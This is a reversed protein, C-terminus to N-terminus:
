DLMERMFVDIEAGFARRGYFINAKLLGVPDGTDFQQGEYEYAIMREKKALADMADALQIEGGRGPRTEELVAFIEPPFLYRGVVSFDSPAEEAKPKEVVRRARHLRGDSSAIDYIGYLHLKGRPTHETANVACGAKAYADILQRCCPVNAEILVDPLIILFPEHGVAEKACLIAHGLGKPREQPIATITMRAALTRVVEVLEEKQLMRLHDDYPTDDRFYQEILPKQPSTILIIEEIGSAVAEEIVIQITPTTGVPLLEKPVAKTVPLFRTGLGAVPIVAKRITPM